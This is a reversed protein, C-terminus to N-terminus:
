NKSGPKTGTPPLTVVECWFQYCTTLSKMFEDFGVPKRVFCNAGMEYATRVEEPNETSSLIVIPTHQVGPTNRIARIIDVGSIKPLNMDLFVIEPIIQRSGNEGRLMNLAHEPDRVTTLNCGAGSDRLVEETLRVDGPNDEILLIDIKRPSNRKTAPNM